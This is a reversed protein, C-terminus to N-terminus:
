ESVVGGKILNKLSRFGVIKKQRDDWLNLFPSKLSKRITLPEVTRLEPTEDYCESFDIFEDAEELYWANPEKSTKIAWTRIGMKKATRM